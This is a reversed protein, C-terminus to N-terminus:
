NFVFVEELLEGNSQTNHKRQNLGKAKLGEIIVALKAEGEAADFDFLPNAYSAGLQSNEAQFKEVEKKKFVKALKGNLPSLKAADMQAKFFEKREQIIPNIVDHGDKVRGVESNYPVNETMRVLMSLKPSNDKGGNFRYVKLTIGPDLTIEQEFM